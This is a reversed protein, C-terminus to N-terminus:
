RKDAGATPGTASGTAVASALGHEIMDLSQDILLHIDDAGEGRVWQSLAARFAAVVTAAVTRPVLSNAEAGMKMAVAQAVVSEWQSLLELNRAAPSSAGRIVDSRALVADRREEYWQAVEHLAARIVALVAPGDSGSGLSERLRSALMPYDALLADEKADFYRFFTRRSVGAANVIDDITVAQFGREAFLALAASAIDTRARAKNRERLTQPEGWPESM